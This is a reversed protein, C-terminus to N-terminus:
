RAGGQVSAKRTYVQAILDRLPMPVERVHQISPVLPGLGAL